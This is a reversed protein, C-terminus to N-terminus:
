AVCHGVCLYYNVWNDHQEARRELIGQLEPGTSQVFQEVLQVYLAKNLDASCMCQKNLVGVVFTSALHMCM